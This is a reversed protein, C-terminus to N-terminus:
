QSENSGKQATQSAAAVEKQATQSAAAVEEQAKLRASVKLGDQFGDALDYNEGPQIM